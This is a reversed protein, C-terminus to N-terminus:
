KVDHPNTAEKEFKDILETNHHSTGGKYGYIYNYFNRSKIVSLWKNFFKTALPRTNNEFESLAGQYAKYYLKGFKIAKKQQLSNSNNLNIYDYNEIASVKM